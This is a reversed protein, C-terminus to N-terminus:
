ILFPVPSVSLNCLLNDPQSILTIFEEFALAPIPSQAAAGSPKEAARSQRPPHHFPLSFSSIFDLHTTIELNLNIRFRYIASFITVSCPLSAKAQVIQLEGEM